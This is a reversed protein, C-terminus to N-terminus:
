QFGAQAALEPHNRLFWERTQMNTVDSLTNWTGDGNRYTALLPAKDSKALRLQNEIYYEYSQLYQGWAVIARYPSSILPNQLKITTM